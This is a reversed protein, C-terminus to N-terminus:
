SHLGQPLDNLNLTISLLCSSSTWLYLECSILGLLFSFRRYSHEWQLFFNGVGDLSWRWWNIWVPSLGKEQMIQLLPNVWRLLRFFCKCSRWELSFTWNNSFRIPRKPACSTLSWSFSEPLAEFRFSPSASCSELSRYSHLWHRFFNRVGEFSLRWWNMWVPSLGKEHWIHRLLNVCRLWTFFWKIARWLNGHITFTFCPTSIEFGISTISSVLFDMLGVLDFFWVYVIYTIADDTSSAFCVVFVDLWLITNRFPVRFESMFAGIASLFKRSRWFKLPMKENMRSFSGKRAVCTVFSESLQNMQLDMMAQM